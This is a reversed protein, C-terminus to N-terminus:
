AADFLGPQHGTDPQTPLDGSPRDPGPQRRQAAIGKPPCALRTGDPLELTLDNADGHVITGNRHKVHHHHKCWLAEWDIDTLGGAEWDILHDVECWAAPIQCGPWRCGGDRAILAEWQADSAYRETRGLQLIETGTHLMWRLEAQEALERIVAAPIRDGMSSLGPQNSRGLFSDLDITVIIKPHERGGTITGAAYAQCLATLADARRQAVTRDDAEAPQGTLHDLANLFQRHELVPLVITSTVVGDDPAGAIV